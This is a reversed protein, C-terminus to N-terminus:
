ENKRKHFFHKFELNEGYRLQIIKLAESYAKELNQNQHYITYFEIMFDSRQQTEFASVVLILDFAAYKEKFTKLQEEWHEFLDQNTLSLSIVHTESFNLDDKKDSISDKFLIIPKDLSHVKFGKKQLNYLIDESPNLNTKESIGENQAQVTQISWCINLTFLLIPIIKM